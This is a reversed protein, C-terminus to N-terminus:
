YNFYVSVFVSKVEPINKEEIDKLMKLVNDKGTEKLHICLMQRFTVMNLYNELEDEPLTLYTRDEIYDINDINFDEKTWEQNVRSNQHKISILVKDDEFDIYNYEHLTSHSYTDYIGDSYYSFQLDEVDKIIYKMMQGLSKVDVTNNFFGCNEIGKDSLKEIGTLHKKLAAIDCVNVIGDCNADGYIINNEEANASIPFLMCVSMIGAILSSLMKM